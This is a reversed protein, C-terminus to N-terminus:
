PIKQNSANHRTAAIEKMLVPHAAFHQKLVLLQARFVDDVLVLGQLALQIRM